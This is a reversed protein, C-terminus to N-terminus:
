SAAAVPRAPPGVPARRVPRGLTVTAEAGSPYTFTVDGTIAFEFDSALPDGYADAGLDLPDLILTGAAIVGADTNPTFTFSQASGPASWSLAFLGGDGAEADVNVNGSLTATYTSSGPYTTGCLATTDDGTDKSAAIRAGNVMCSVDIETGTAGILLTGPGLVTPGAYVPASM